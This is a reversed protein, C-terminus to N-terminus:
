DPCNVPRPRSAGVRRPIPLPRQGVRTKPRVRAMRPRDTRATEIVTTVGDPSDRSALAEATALDAAILQFCRLQLQQLRDMDGSLVAKLMQTWVAPRNAWRVRLEASMGLFRSQLGWPSCCTMAQVQRISWGLLVRATAPCQHAVHWALVLASSWLAQDETPVAPGYRTGGDQVCSDSPVCPALDLLLVPCTGLLACQDPTLRRLLDPFSVWSLSRRPAVARSERVLTELLRTNIEIVHSRLAADGFFAPRVADALATQPDMSFDM